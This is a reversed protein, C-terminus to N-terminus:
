LPQLARFLDSKSMATLEQIIEQSKKMSSTAKHQRYLGSSTSLVNEIAVFLQVVPHIEAFYQRTICIHAQLVNHCKAIDNDQTLSKSWTNKVLKEYKGRCHSM